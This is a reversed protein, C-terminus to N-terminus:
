VRLKIIAQCFSRYVGCKGDSIVVPRNHLANEVLMDHQAEVLGKGLKAWSRPCKRVMIAPYYYEYNRAFTSTTIPMVVMM